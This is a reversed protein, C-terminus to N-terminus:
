SHASVHMDASTLSENCSKKRHLEANENLDIQKYLFCM